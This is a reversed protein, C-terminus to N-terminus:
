NDCNDLRPQWFWFKKDNLRDTLGVDHWTYM